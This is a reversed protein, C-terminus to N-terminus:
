GALNAPQAQSFQGQGEMELTLQLFRIVESPSLGGPKGVQLEESISILDDDLSAGTIVIVPLTAFDKQERLQHLLSLGDGSELYVDLFVVDPKQHSIIELAQQQNAAVKMKIDANIAKLMRALLKWMAREDEVILVKQLKGGIQSLTDQLNDFTIPKTLWGQIGIKQIFQEYSSLPSYILMPPHPLRAIRRRHKLQGIKEPTDCIILTPLLRKATILALELTAVQELYVGPLFRSLFRIINTDQSYVLVVPEQITENISGVPQTNTKIINSGKVPLTFSFTTGQGPASEVGIRGGHLEVFMKSIALGLGVGTHKRTTSGDVQYFKDFVRGLKDESIGSGTDSISVIIQDHSFEVTLAIHGHQTFRLANSLLNLIVQRIRTRDASIEPLHEPLAVKFDLGKNEITSRMIGDVEQAIEAINVQEKLMGLQGADIRSLDLVDDVLNLLHRSSRYIAMVDSRYEPPLPVNDYSQPAFAIMEAFGSILNLPTRLEHSVNAVFQAKFQEAEEAMERATQLERNLRELQYQTKKLEKLARHLEARDEQAACTKERAQQYSNWAWALTTGQVKSILWAAGATLWILGVPGVFNPGTFSPYNLWFVAVTSLFGWTLTLLPGGLTGALLVPLAFYYAPIVIQYVLGVYIGSFLTGGLISWVSFQYSHEKLWYSLGIGLLLLAVAIWEPMPLWQRTNVVQIWVYGAIILPLTWLLLSLFEERLSSIFKKEVVRKHQFTIM